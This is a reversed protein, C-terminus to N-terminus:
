PKETQASGPDRVQITEDLPDTGGKSPLEIRASFGLALNSTSPMM